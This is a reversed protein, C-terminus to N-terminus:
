RTRCAPSSWTRDGWNWLRGRSRHYQQAQARLPSMISYAAQHQRPRRARSPSGAPKAAKRTSNSRRSARAEARLSGLM